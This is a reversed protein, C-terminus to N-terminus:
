VGASATSCSAVSLAAWPFESAKLFQELSVRSSFVHIGEFYEGDFKNNRVQITAETGAPAVISAYSAMTSYFVGFTVGNLLEIPLVWWPNTLASYLFFRLAFGALVLSMANIHGIKRLIWGSLFFFPLEGGFCQIAMALGQLTKIWTSYDCGEEKAALDELHWFLFNWILATCLGVVICWSLFIVVRFSKLLTGVDKMINSSLKTQSYKLKKSVLMDLLILILMMYFLVSYDKYSKGRSFEDVLLGSVLSVSGWGVAGWLRQNGYLHPKDALMEFCIADGVTVVVAMGIWSVVLCMFFMWFQYFGTVENDPIKSARLMANLEANNCTIDCHAKMSHEKTTENSASASPCFLTSTEKTQPSEGQVIVIDLCEGSILIDKLRSKTILELPENKHDTCLVPMKWHDCILDWMTSTSQCHLNCLLSDNGHTSEINAVACEKISDENSEPCYKLSHFGSNCYFTAKSEQPIAPIFMILFFALTLVQFFHPFM